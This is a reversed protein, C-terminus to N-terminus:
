SHRHRHRGPPGSDNERNEKKGDSGQVGVEAGEETRDSLGAQKGRKIVLSGATGFFRGAAHGVGTRVSARFLASGAIATTERLRREDGLRGRSRTANLSPLCVSMRSQIGKHEPGSVSLSKRQVNSKKTM